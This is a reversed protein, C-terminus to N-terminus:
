REMSTHLEVNEENPMIMFNTLQFPFSFNGKKIANQDLSIKAILIQEMKRM